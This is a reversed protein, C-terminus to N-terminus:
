KTKETPKTGASAAATQDDAKSKTFNAL